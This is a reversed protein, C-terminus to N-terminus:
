MSYTKFVIKGFQGFLNFSKVVQGFASGWFRFGFREVLESVM